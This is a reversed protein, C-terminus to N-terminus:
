APHLHDSIGSAERVPVTQGASDPAGGGWLRVPDILHLWKKARSPLQGPTAATRFEKELTLCGPPWRCATVVKGGLYLPM